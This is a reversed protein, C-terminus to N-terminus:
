NLIPNPLLKGKNKQRQRMIKAYQAFLKKYDGYNHHSFIPKMHLMIEERVEAAIEIKGQSLEKELTFLIRRLSGVHQAGECLEAHGIFAINLSKRCKVLKKFDMMKEASLMSDLMNKVAFTKLRNMVQLNEKLVHVIQIKNKPLNSSKELIKEYRALEMRFLYERVELHFLSQSSPVGTIILSNGSGDWKFEAAIELRSQLDALFSQGTEKMLLKSHDNTMMMRAESVVEPVREIQVPRLPNEKESSTLPIFEPLTVAFPNKVLQHIEKEAIKETVAKIAKEFSTEPSKFVNEPEQYFESFSYNSNSDDHANTVVTSTM